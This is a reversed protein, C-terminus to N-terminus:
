LYAKFVFTLIMTFPSHPLSAIFISGSSFCREVGRTDRAFHAGCAHTGRRYHLWGRQVFDQATLAGSQTLVRNYWLLAHSDLAADDCVQAAMRMANIDRGDLSVAKDYCDLAQAANAVCSWLQSAISHAFGVDAFSSICDRVYPVEEYLGRSHYCQGIGLWGAKHRPELAV